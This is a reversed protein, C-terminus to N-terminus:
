TVRVSNCLSYHTARVNKNPLLHQYKRLFDRGTRGLGGWKSYKGHITNFTEQLREDEDSYVLQGDLFDLMEVVVERLEDATNDVWEVGLEKYNVASIADGLPPQLGEEFTLLRAGEVSRLPKYLVIQNSARARATMSVYNTQIMPVNFIEPFAMLGANTGIYFRCQACCFVDMFESRIPSHAYDVVYDMTEIPRMNSDGMRLVWGGRDVVARIAEKYTRIDANRHADWLDTGDVGNNKFGYDRVHLAVFWAGRPVGVKELEDWGRVIEEASMQVLPERGEAEWVKNIQGIAENGWVAKGKMVTWCDIDDEIPDGTAALRALPSSDDDVYTVYESWHEFMWRNSVPVGTPLVAVSQHPPMLGLLKSKIHADLHVYFGYNGTLIKGPVFRVGRSDLQRERAIEQKVDYCQQMARNLGAFDLLGMLNAILPRYSVMNRENIELAKRLYSVADKRLSRNHRGRKVEDVWANATLLGLEHYVRADQVDRAVLLRYWRALLLGRVSQWRHRLWMNMRYLFNIHMWQPLVAKLLAKIKLLVKGV